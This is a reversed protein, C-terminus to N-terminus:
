DWWGEIHKKMYNFLFEIDQKKMKEPKDMIRKFDKNEQEIQKDTIAKERGLLSRYLNNNETGKFDLTIEGWKEAHHKFVNEYYNDDILRKLLLTALKIQNADKDNHLHCGNKRINKEMIELKKYLIKWIFYHDWWRDNWITTFWIFLNPIGIQINYYITELKNYNKKFFKKFM